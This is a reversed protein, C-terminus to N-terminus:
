RGRALAKDYTVHCSRCMPAYDMPDPSWGVVVRGRKFSPVLGSQEHPSGGRYAWERAKNGCECVHTSARGRWYAVRTHATSYSIPAELDFEPMEDTRDASRARQKRQWGNMYDRVRDRNEAVYRRNYCRPCEDTRVYRVPREGCVACM